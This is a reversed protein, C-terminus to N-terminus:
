EASVKHLEDSITLPEPHTYNFISLPDPRGDCGEYDVREIAYTRGPAPRIAEYEQFVESEDVEAEEFIRDLKPSAEDECM